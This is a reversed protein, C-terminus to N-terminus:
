PNKGRFITEYIVADASGEVKINTDVLRIKLDKAAAENTVAIYEPKWKRAQAELLDLNRGGAALASIGLGLKEAVTLAQTGISGTSGLITIKKM